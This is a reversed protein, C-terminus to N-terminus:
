CAERLLAARGEIAETRGRADRGVRCLALAPDHTFFLRGGRAILDDLLSEKEDILREPFRDYGMSISTHVWARGPILDSGFVVPGDRGLTRSPLSFTDM